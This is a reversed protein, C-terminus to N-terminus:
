NLQLRAKRSSVPAIEVMAFLGNLVILGLLLVFDM